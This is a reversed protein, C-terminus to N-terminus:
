ERVRDDTDGIDREAAVVYDFGVRLRGEKTAEKAKGELEDFMVKMGGRANEPM